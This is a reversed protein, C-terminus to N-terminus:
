SVLIVITVRPTKGIKGERDKVSWCLYLNNAILCRHKADFFLKDIKLQFFQKYHFFFLM